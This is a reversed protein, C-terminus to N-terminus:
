KSLASVRPLARTEGGGKKGEEKRRWGCFVRRKRREAPRAAAQMFATLEGGMRMESRVLTLGAPVKKERGKGGGEHDDV